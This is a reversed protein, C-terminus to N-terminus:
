LESRKEFGSQGWAVFYRVCGGCGGAAVVPVLHEVPVLLWCAGLCWARCELERWDLDCGVSVFRSETHYPFCVCSVAAWVLGSVSLLVLNPHM